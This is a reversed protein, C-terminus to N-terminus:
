SAWRALLMGALLGLAAALPLWGPHVGRRREVHRVPGPVRPDHWDVVDLPDPNGRPATM